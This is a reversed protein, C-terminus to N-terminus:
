KSSDNETKSDNDIDLDYYEAKMIVNALWEKQDRIDFTLKQDNTDTANNSLKVIKDQM